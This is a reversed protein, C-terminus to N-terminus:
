SADMQGRELKSVSLGSLVVGLRVADTWVMGTGRLVSLGVSSSYAIRMSTFLSISSICFISTTSM